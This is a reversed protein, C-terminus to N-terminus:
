LALPYIIEDDPRFSTSILPSKQATDLSDYVDFYIEEDEGKKFAYGACSPDFSSTIVKEGYAEAGSIAIPNPSLYIAPNYKFNSYGDNLLDIFPFSFSASQSSTLSSPIHSALPLFSPFPCVSFDPVVINL